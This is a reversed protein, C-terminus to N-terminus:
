DSRRRWLVLTVLAAGALLLLLMWPRADGPTRDREIAFTANFGPPTLGTAKFSRQMGPSGLRWGPGLVATVETEGQPPPHVGPALVFTFSTAEPLRVKMTAEVVLAGGSVSQDRGLDVTVTPTFPLEVGQLSWTVWRPAQAQYRQRLNDREAADVEGDNNGDAKHRVEAAPQTGYLLAVSLFAMDGQTALTIYRNVLAPASEPHAQAPQALMAWLAFATVPVVFKVM